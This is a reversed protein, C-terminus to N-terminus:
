PNKERKKVGYYLVDFIAQRRQALFSERDFPQGIHVLVERVIPEAVFYYICSGLVTIMFQIPEVAGLHGARQEQEILAVLRQPLTM